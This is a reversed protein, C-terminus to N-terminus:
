VSFSGRKRGRGCVRLDNMAVLVPPRDGGWALRVHPVAGVEVVSVVCKKYLFPGGATAPPFRVFCPLDSPDPQDLARRVNHHGGTVVRSRAGEDSGGQGDEASERHRRARPSHRPPDCFPQPLEAEYSPQPPPGQPAAAAPTAAAAAAAAAAAPVDADFSADLASGFNVVRQVPSTCLPPAHAVLMVSAEVPSPTAPPVHHERPQRAGAGCRRRGGGEPLSLPTAVGSPPAPKDGAATAAAAAAPTTVPTSPPHPAQAQQPAQPMETLPAPEVSSPQQQPLVAGRDSGDKESAVTVAPDNAAISAATSDAPPRPQQQQQQQQPGEGIGWAPVQRRQLWTPVTDPMDVAPPPPPAAAAKVEEKAEGEEEEAKRGGNADAEANRAVAAPPSPPRRGDGSPESAVATESSSAADQEAADDAQHSAAAAQKRSGSSQRCLDYSRALAVETADRLAPSPDSPKLPSRALEISNRRLFVGFDADEPGGGGGAAAAEGTAVAQGGAAAGSSLSLLSELRQIYGRQRCILMAYAHVHVDREDCVSSEADSSCCGDDVVVGANDDQAM